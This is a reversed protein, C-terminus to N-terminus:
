SEAPLPSPLAAAHLENNRAAARDALTTVWTPLASYNDRGRNADRGTGGPEPLVWRNLCALADATLNPCLAYALVATKAPLGIVVEADGRSCAALISRAASEASTSWGPAASNAAFWRYEERTRGKFEANLHCGTRLPGPCVTTVVVGHRAVEARLGTSFGVLAFKGTSYPLLHPFALKGGVSAVNVIRGARRATMEPLVELTTYLPAWFHTRLSQEFDAPTMEEAPGVCIAGANNVLVDVPGNARRAVALFERVRERDTVDCEIAVVPSGFERLDAEARALENADRSCITLRAGLRALRRALVLGLGRSGGTVVVHRDRFRYRSQVSRYALYGGIGIAAAALLTRSM